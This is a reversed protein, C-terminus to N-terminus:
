SYFRFEGSNLAGSRRIIDDDYWYCYLTIIKGGSAAGNAIFSCQTTVMGTNYSLSFLAGGHSGAFNSAFYVNLLTAGANSDRLLV